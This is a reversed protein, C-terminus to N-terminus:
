SVIQIKEKIQKGCSERIILQPDIKKLLPALDKNDIRTLLRLVGMQGMEYIPQHMTTLGFYEALEIDDFSVIAIDEPVRLGRTRLAQIAGIAQIDSAIFLARPHDLENELLKLMARYGAMKAFGDSEDNDDGYVIFREDLELHFEALAQRFGDLRLSAPRSVLRGNIMGIKKYGNHILQCTARYAGLENEITISDILPHASDVLVIPLGITLFKEAYKDDLPLSCLIVGDVRKEELTRLLFRNLREPRDICYLVLDYEHRTLEHQIGKLMEVFFYTLFFPVIVAISGTKRRALGRALAHPKYNLEEAIKLIRAKTEPLIQPSNNLARSVTGIGVRAKRAVDYITVAM